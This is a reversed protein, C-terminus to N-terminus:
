YEDYEDETLDPILGSAGSVAFGHEVAIDVREVSPSSYSFEGGRLILINTKM